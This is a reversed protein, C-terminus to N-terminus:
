IPGLWKWTEGPNKGPRGAEARSNRREQSRSTVKDDNVKGMLFKCLAGYSEKVFVTRGGGVGCGRHSDRVDQPPQM